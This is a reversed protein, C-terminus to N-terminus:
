GSTIATGVLLITYCSCFEKKYNIKIVTSKQEFYNEEYCVRLLKTKPINKNSNISAPYIM